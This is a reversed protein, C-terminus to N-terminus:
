IGLTKAVDPGGPGSEDSTWGSRVLDGPSARGIGQPPPASSVHFVGPNFHSRTDLGSGRTPIAPPSPLLHYAGHGGGGGCADIPGNM